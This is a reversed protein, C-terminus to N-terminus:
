RGDDASRMLALYGDEITPDVPEGSPVDGLVKYRGDSTPWGVAGEPLEDTLWVQGGAIAALEAPPGDHVIRGARLVVITKAISLVEEPQHTSVIVSSGGQALTALVRRLVVRQEPDLGAGPEDLLVVRPEGLATQALGVRKQQGGSLKRVKRDRLETLQLRSIIEEVAERRTTTEVIGKLVAIRDLHQSVTLRPNFGLTQPMYSLMGRARRNDAEKGLGIGCIQIQGSDARMVTALCRLMTTKGAGNPGLLVSVGPGQEFSVGDLATVPGFSKRIQEVSIM